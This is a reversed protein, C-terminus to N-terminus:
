KREFLRKSQSRRAHQSAKPTMLAEDCEKLMKPANIFWRATRVARPMGNFLKVEINAGQEM